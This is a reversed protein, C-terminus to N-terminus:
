VITSNDDCHLVVSKTRLRLPVSGLFSGGNVDCSVSHTLSCFFLYFSEEASSGMKNSGTTDIYISTYILSHEGM